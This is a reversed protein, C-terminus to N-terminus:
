KEEKPWALKKAAMEFPMQKLVRSRDEEEFRLERKVTDLVILPYSNDGMTASIGFGTTDKLSNSGQTMHTFVIRALYQPDDWRQKLALAGSVVSPLDHGESHTYLFVEEDGNKIVVNARDGM